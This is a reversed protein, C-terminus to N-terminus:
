AYSELYVTMLFVSNLSFYVRMIPLLIAVLNDRFLLKVDIIASLIIRSVSQIWVSPLQRNQFLVVM